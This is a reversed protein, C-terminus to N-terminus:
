GPRRFTYHFLKKFWIAPHHIYGSQSFLIRLQVFADRRLNTQSLSEHHKRYWLLPENVFDIVLDRGLALWLMYDEYGQFLPSANFRKKEILSRHIVVSSNIFFNNWFLEREYNSQTFRYEQLYRRNESGVIYADSCSCNAKRDTMRHVQVEIKHPMWYDDSDCFAVYDGSAAELGRNRAVAPLGSHEERFYQVRKGFSNRIVTATGDTSGDDVVIIELPQYSQRFIADLCRPLFEERNYTPVIVSVLSKM